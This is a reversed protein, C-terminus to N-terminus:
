ACDDGPPTFPYPRRTAPAAPWRPRSDPDPDPEPAPPVLTLIRAGRRAAGREASAAANDAPRLRPQPGPGAVGPTVASATQGSRALRQYAPHRWGRALKAIVPSCSGRILVIFQPPLQRIMAATLVDHWVRQKQPRRQRFSVQGCLASLQRLLDDDALGPTVIKCGCTDLVTQAGHVGWRSKLQAMGHFGLCLQVGQGGADAAWAPVPVPCIQTVEDLCLLLPPDLRQGPQRAGLQTARYEIETALAAFLPALTCEEGTGKAIMYLTGGGLLFRDIDFAQGPQPVVAAALQPDQVFSLARSIVMRVVGATKDAPGTLESLQAALSDHGADDLIDIAESVLPTGAWASVQRMTYGAAAAATFMGAISDAAKGAFFGGDDAGAMSVAAALAEARRRATAPSACGELPSWQVNSAIGGIGQPNFVWVPGRAARVGSTLAFMDPKSSTSVVPGPASMILRSLLASKWSRPPGIVALHEQVPVRIRLFYHAWGLFLSHEAPHAARYWSPLSPRTRKSERWSAMRGWRWWLELATAHGPGPHLRLHLRRRLNRARNHPLRHHPWFAWWMAALVLAALGAAVLVVTLDHLLVHELSPGHRRVHRHARAAAASLDRAHRSAAARTGAGHHRGTRAHDHRGHRGHRSAEIRTATM